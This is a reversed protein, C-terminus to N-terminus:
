KLGVAQIGRELYKQGVLFVLLPPALIMISSALAVAAQNGAAGPLYLSLPWLAKDKLFTLPQEIMSWYEIFGLIMAAAIGPAGVHIGIHIFTQFPGAGDISAAELLADPIGKFFRYVIFVPFTSFVAPLIVALRTNMLHLNDLVIYNSVMTVQFPMLMLVIYIMFLAKRGKFNYKAFGWAAPVAVLMQGALIPLVLKVSNWFMVFFDPSDLLLEVYARLTPYEPLLFWAASRGSNDMLVPGIKEYVEDAGMFSGAFLICVPILVFLALALILVSKLVVTRRSDFMM